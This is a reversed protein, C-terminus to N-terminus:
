ASVEGAKRLFCGSACQQTGRTCTHVHVHARKPAAEVAPVPDMRHDAVMEGIADVARRYLRRATMDSIDLQRGIARMSAGAVSLRVVNRQVESALRDVVREWGEPLPAPGTRPKLRSGGLREIAAQLDLQVTRVSVDLRAAIAAQTMGERCRLELVERQRPPLAEIADAYCGPAWEGDAPELFELVACETDDRGTTTREWAEVDRPAWERRRDTRAAELAQFKAAAALRPWAYEDGDALLQPMRGRSVAVWVEQAVDQAEAWYAAGGLRAATYRVLHEGHEEALLRVRESQGPTLPRDEATRLDVRAPETYSRGLRREVAHVAHEAVMTM